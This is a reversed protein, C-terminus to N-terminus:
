RLTAIRRKRRQRRRRKMEQFGLFGLLLTRHNEYWLVSSHVPKKPKNLEFSESASRAWLKQFEQFGLFSLFGTCLLTQHDQHGLFGLFGTCLLTQHADDKEHLPLLTTVMKCPYACYSMMRICRTLFAMTGCSSTTLAVYVDGHSM